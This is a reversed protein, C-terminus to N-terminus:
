GLHRALFDLTRRRALRSAAADHRAPRTHNDFGHPVGPYIHWPVEPRRARFAAVADPPVATDADGVHCLVPCRPARDPFDCMDSGYYAIAADFTDTCAALWTLTGGYCFGMVAVKGADRVADAAAALDQVALDWDAEKCLAKGRASGIDDYPLALGPEVRDWLDPAIAAYGDAAYADCVERLYGNVGYMEMAVVLGGRPAGDPRALYADFAHGDASTLRITEGM